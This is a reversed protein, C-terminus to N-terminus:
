FSQYVSMMLYALKWAFGKKVYFKLYVSNKLMNGVRLGVSRLTFMVINLTCSACFKLMIYIICMHRHVYNVFYVCPLSPLHMSALPALSLKFYARDHSILDKTGACRATWVWNSYLKHFLVLSLTHVACHVHVIYIVTHM